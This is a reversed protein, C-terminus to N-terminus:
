SSLRLEYILLWCGLASLAVVASGTRAAYRCGRLRKRAEVRVRHTREITGKAKEVGAWGGSGMRSRPQHHSRREM